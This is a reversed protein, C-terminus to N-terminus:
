FVVGQTRGGSVTGTRLAYGRYLGLRGSGLSSWCGPLAPPRYAYLGVNMSNLRRRPGQARSQLRSGSRAYVVEHGRMCGCVVGVYVVRMCCGGCVSAYVRCTGEGEM